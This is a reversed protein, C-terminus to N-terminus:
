PALIMSEVTLIQSVKKLVSVFRTSIDMVIVYSIYLTSLLSTGDSTSGARNLLSDGQGGVLSTITLDAAGRLAFKWVVSLFMPLKWSGNALTSTMFALLWRPIRQCNSYSTRERFPNIAPFSLAVFADSRLPLAEENMWIDGLYFGPRPLQLGRPSFLSGM